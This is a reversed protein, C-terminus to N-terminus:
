SVGLQLTGQERGLAQELVTVNGLENHRVNERLRRRSRPEPEFSLVRGSSGVATAMVMTYVGISAGVDWCTEGVSIRSVIASLLVRDDKWSLARAYEYADNVLLAAAKGGIYLTVETCKTRDFEKRRRAYRAYSRWGVIRTIGIKRCLARVRVLREFNMQQTEM